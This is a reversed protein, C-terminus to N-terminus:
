CPLHEERPLLAPEGGAACASSASAHRTRVDGTPRPAQAGAAHALSAFPARGGGRTAPAPAVSRASRPCRPRRHRFLRQAMLAHAADLLRDVEALGHLEECRAIYRKAFECITSSAAPTPGSSSCITTKFFHNHGFAAHAIVLAQMAMTNEEM